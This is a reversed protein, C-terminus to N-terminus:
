AKSVAAIIGKKLILNAYPATEGTAVVAYAKKAREYFAFREVQVPPSPPHNHLYLTVARAAPTVRSLDPRSTRSCHAAQGVTAGVSEFEIARGEADNALSKYEDWIPVTWGAAVHMPMLAM